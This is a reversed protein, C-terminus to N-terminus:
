VAAEIKKVIMSNKGDIKIIKGVPNGASDITEVEYKGDEASIIKGNSFIGVALSVIYKIRVIDGVRYSATESSM